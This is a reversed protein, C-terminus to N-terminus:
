ELATVLSLVGRQYYLSCTTPKHNNLQSVDATLTFTIGVMASNSATCASQPTGKDNTHKGKPSGLTNVPYVGM